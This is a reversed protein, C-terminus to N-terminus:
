LVVKTAKNGQKKIFLGNEPNAVKVGQLNYYEVPANEAEITEIATVYDAPVEFSYRAVFQGPHYHYIYAKTDSVAQATLCTASYGTDTGLAAVDAVVTNTVRNVIQWSSKYNVDPGEADTPEVTFQIAGLTFVDGGATTCKEIKSGEPRKYAVWEDGSKCYFDVYDRARVAVEDSNPDNTLPVAIAMNDAVKAYVNSIVKSKSEDLQGNAIFLKLISTQNQGMLFFAGGEESFIDGCGRGMYDMRGAVATFEATTIAITKSEKTTTNYAVFSKMAGAGAWGNSILMNGVGDVGIATGAAAANVVTKVVNEGDQSFCEIHQGGNTKVQVYVNGDYGTAWRADAKAPLDTKLLWDETLTPESVQAMAGLSMMASISLLLLKKM